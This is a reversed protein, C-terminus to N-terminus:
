SKVKSKQNVIGAEKAPQMFHSSESLMMGLRKIKEVLAVTRDFTVLPNILTFKLYAKGQIETQGIVAKGTQLLAQKIGLNVANTSRYRFVVTSMEPNVALELQPDQEIHAAIQQAIDIGRDVVGGFFERGLSRFAIYPKVADFRRTTQISKTVLDPIGDDENYEPNLYAVNLRMLEFRSKDKLLFLSCPIPQYFLKHFDITISDAQHISALKQRHRDSLMLAGGYAADVHLWTNHERAIAAMEGIPDISGFDTTGATAVICIPILDQRSIDELCQVLHQSCLRYNEDVKVRVVADMGLGLIAASQQVSFHAVESCLIRFRGALNPLGHLQSTFGLQQLAYDRALMLGMFNSQTGGSTLTGDANTNYGYLQCMFDILNQELLTAAGSQDWSDMSQNFASILMEAALSPILVPCHLHAICDPHHVAISHSFIAEVTEQLVQQTPIGQEPLIEQTLFESLTAPSLGSFVQEQQSLCDQILKQTQQVTQAYQALSEPSYNLFHQLDM